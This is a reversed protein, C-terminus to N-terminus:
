GQGINLTYLAQRGKRSAPAEREWSLCLSKGRAIKPRKVFQTCQISYVNYVKSCVEYRAEFLGRRPGIHDKLPALIGQRPRPFM